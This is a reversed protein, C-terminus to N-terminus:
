DELHFAVKLDAVEEPSIHVIGGLTMADLISQATSELVELRDFAQLLSNGTVIACDNEALIAPCAPAFTEAALQPNEYLLGYPLRRIERLLVYSEPITRPDFDAGTVAFAMAHVPRAQFIARIEPHAEYIARHLAVAPDPLKGAERRGAQILVLEEPELDARDRGAPTILFGGDSLRASYTGDAACILGQRYARRLLAVMERRLALAPAACGGPAFSELAQAADPRAEAPLGRVPGLRSAALELKAMHNLMEFRAFAAPLDEAGVCVGHNELLVADCGEAFCTSITEGLAESGPVAYAALGLRLCRNGAPPLLDQRPLRRLISFSVLAPPHAHLVARLDPRRRYIGAHFPLESSPRHPGIVQGAPTLCIIDRPTLAGKDIGAPTIWLNGQDDRVSLNGGSTTTLGRHYIRQMFRVILDAPHMNSATM